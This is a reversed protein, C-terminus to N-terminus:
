ETDEPPPGRRTYPTAGRAAPTVAGDEGPEGDADAEGLDTWTVPILSKSGDQLVLLLELRGYRRADTWCGCHWAKWRIAGARDRNVDGDQWGLWM